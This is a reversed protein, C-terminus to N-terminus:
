MKFPSGGPPGGFGGPMGGVPAPNAPGGPMQQPTGPMAQGGGPMPMAPAQVQVGAMLSGANVTTGALREGDATRMVVLLGVGVGPKPSQRTYLQVAVSAIVGAYFTSQMNEPVPMFEGPVAPNPMVVQPPYNQSAKSNVMQLNATVPNSRYREEQAAPRLPWEFNGYNYEGAPFGQQALTIMRQHIDNASQANLLLVCSYYPDGQVMGQQNTYPEPTFIKPFSLIVGDLRFPDTKISQFAM